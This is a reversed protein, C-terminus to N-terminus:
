NFWDRLDMLAEIEYDPLPETRWLRSAAHFLGENVMSQGDIEGGVFRIFVVDGGAVTRGYGFNLRFVKKHGPAIAAPSPNSGEDESEFGPTNGTVSVRLM